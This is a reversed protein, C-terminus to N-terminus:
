SNFVPIVSHTIEQNVLATFSKSCHFSRHVLVYVCGGSLVDPIVESRQKITEMVNVPMFLDARFDCLHDFEDLVCSCYSLDVVAVQSLSLYNDNGEYTKPSKNPEVRIAAPSM